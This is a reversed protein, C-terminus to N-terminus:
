SGKYFYWKDPVKAQGKNIKKSSVLNQFIDSDSALKIYENAVKNELIRPHEFSYIM